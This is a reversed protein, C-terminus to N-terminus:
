LKTMFIFWMDVSVCCKNIKHKNTSPVGVWIENTVFGVGYLQMNFMLYSRVINCNTSNKHVTNVSLNSKVLFMDLRM